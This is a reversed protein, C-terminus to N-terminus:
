VIIIWLFFSSTELLFMGQAVTKYIPGKFELSEQGPPEYVAYEHGISATPIVLQWILSM